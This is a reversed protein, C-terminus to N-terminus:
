NDLWTPARDLLYNSVEICKEFVTCPLQEGEWLRRLPVIIRGTVTLNRQAAEGVGAISDAASIELPFELGGISSLDLAVVLLDPSLVLPPLSWQFVLNFAFVESDSPLEITDETTNLAIFDEFGLLVRPDVELALHLDLPGGCAAEPHVDIEWVQRLSYTEIFHREDHVHLGHDVAHNKVESVYGAVDIVAV